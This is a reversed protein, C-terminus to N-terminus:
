LNIPKIGGGGGGGGSCDVFSTDVGDFSGTINVTGASSSLGTCSYDGWVEVSAKKGTGTQKPDCPSGALFRVKVQPNTLTCTAGSFSVARVADGSQDTSYTVSKIRANTADLTSTGNVIDFTGTIGEVSVDMGFKLSSSMGYYMGASITFKGAGPDYSPQVIRVGGSNTALYDVNNVRADTAISGTASSTRGFIFVSDPKAPVTYALNLTKTVTHSINCADKVVVAVKRNAVYNIYFDPISSCDSFPTDLIGSGTPDWACKYPAQGNAGAIAASASLNYLNSGSGSTVSIGNPNLSAATFSPNQCTVSANYFKTLPMMAPASVQVKISYDGQNNISLSNPGEHLGLIQSSGNVVDTQSMLLSYSAGSVSSSPTVVLNYSQGSKLVLSSSPDSDDYILKNASDYVRVGVKMQAVTSSSALTGSEFGAESDYGSKVCGSLFLLPCLLVTGYLIHNKM